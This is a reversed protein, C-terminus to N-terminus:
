NPLVPPLGECGGDAVGALGGQVAGEGGVGAAFGVPLIADPKANCVKCCEMGVARHPKVWPM